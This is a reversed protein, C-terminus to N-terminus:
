RFPHMCHSCADIHFHTCIHYRHLPLLTVPMSPPTSYISFPALQCLEQAFTHTSLPTADVGAVHMLVTSLLIEDLHLVFSYCSSTSIIYQHTDATWRPQQYTPTQQGAHRM